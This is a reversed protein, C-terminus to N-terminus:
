CKKGGPALRAADSHDARTQNYTLKEVFAGGLDYGHGAAYDLLRILADALEVEAMKRHPLHTDMIDKREGEMAEAIETVILMLMEGRNRELPEGTAPDTWWRRNHRHCLWALYDIRRAIRNKSEINM